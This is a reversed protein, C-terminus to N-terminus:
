GPRLATGSGVGSDCPTGRLVLHRAPPSHTSGKGPDRRPAPGSEGSRRPSDGGCCRRTLPRPLPTARGPDRRRAPGSERTAPLGGCCWLALPHPYPAVGGRSRPASGSGVGRQTVHLGGAAGHPSRAPYPRQGVRTAAGHRVRSGLRLSDGPLVSHHAPPSLSSGNWPDRRSAQGSEESSRLSPCGKELADPFPPQPAQVARPTNM